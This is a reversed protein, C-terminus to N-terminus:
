SQAHNRKRYIAMLPSTLELSINLTHLIKFLTDLQITEKGKEVDYIVTKGVGAIEALAVRSLKAQRRHYQIVKGVERINEHDIKVAMFTVKDTKM